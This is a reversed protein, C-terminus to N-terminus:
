DTSFLDTQGTAVVIATLTLKDGELKYIVDACDFVTVGTERSLLLYGPHSTSRKSGRRTTFSQPQMVKQAPTGKKGHCLHATPRPDVPLQTSTVKIRTM